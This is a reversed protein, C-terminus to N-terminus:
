QITENLRHNIEFYLLGYDAIMILVVLFLIVLYRKLEIRKHFNLSIVDNVHKLGTKTKDTFFYIEM